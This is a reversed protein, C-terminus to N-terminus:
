KKLAKYIAKSFDHLDEPVRSTIINGDIVLPEDIYKAGADELETQVNKYATCTKGKMIGASIFVQPGHCIGAIPKGTEYFDKVFKIIQENERLTAPAKGGPLIIADFYDISIDNISKQIKINFDSNYANVEGIEPGIVCVKLGRNTLYGIPMYAERDHFGETLLVGVKKTNKEYKSNGNSIETGNCGSFVSIVGIIVAM